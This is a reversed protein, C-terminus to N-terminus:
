SVAFVVRSLEPNEAQSPLNNHIVLISILVLGLLVVTGWEKKSKM